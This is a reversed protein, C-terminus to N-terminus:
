LSKQRCRLSSVSSGFPNCLHIEGSCLTQATYGAVTQTANPLKGNAALEAVTDKFNLQCRVATACVLLVAVICLCARKKQGSM